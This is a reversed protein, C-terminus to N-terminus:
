RIYNIHTQDCCGTLLAQGADGAGTDECWESAKGIESFARLIVHVTLSVWACRGHYVAPLRRRKGCYHRVHIWTSVEAAMGQVEAWSKVRPCCLMSQCELVPWGQIIGAATVASAHM